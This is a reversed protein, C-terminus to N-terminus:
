PLSEGRHSRATQVDQNNIRGDVTLDDRFNTSNTMEGRHAQINGIDGNGVHGDGNIDGILVGMSAPASALTNGQDDHVNTATITVNQENCTAGNFTVLLNHSDNPDVSVSGITGCTTGASDAGTVDNNFTFVTTNRTLGTRCEIGLHGTLPLDIDFDGKAGHTKRSAASTLDLGGASEAFILGKPILAPGGSTFVQIFAGTTGDYRLISGSGQGTVYLDGDPGFILYDAVLLGGSGAPVFDDIFAGTTGDYREVLNELWRCAYLNGDSGFTLGTIAVDIPTGGHSFVDIFQGTTGSFRLIHHHGNFEPNFEGAYINGDPGFTFATFLALRSDSVFTDVFAGTEADYRSITGLFRSSVYLKGDPRFFLQDPNALGGSGSPVFDDVFAGTNRDYRKVSSTGWSTVYLNGDPGITLNQPFSLGGSGSSVLIELFAGTTGDFSEVTAENLNCTLLQTGAARAHPSFAFCALALALFGFGRWFPPRSSLARVSPITLLRPNFFASRSAFKTKM